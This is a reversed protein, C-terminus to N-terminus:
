EIMLAGPGAASIHINPKFIAPMEETKPAMLKTTVIRLIFCGSRGSMFVDSNTQDVRTVDTMISTAIGVKAAASIMSYVSLSPTEPKKLGAIPPSGMAYWCRNQNVNWGSTYMNRIGATPMSYSSIGLNELFGM